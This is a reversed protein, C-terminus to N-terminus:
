VEAAGFRRLLSVMAPVIPNERRLRYCTMQGMREPVVLGSLEMVRLQQSAAPLTVDLVNAVDTVCLDEREALLQFIRWRGPDALAQFVYPLERQRLVEQQLQRVQQNTLM